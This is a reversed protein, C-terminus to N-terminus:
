PHTGKVIQGGRFVAVPVIQGQQMRFLTMEADRRDGKADFAIRGTAPTMDAYAM